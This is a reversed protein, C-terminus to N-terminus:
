GEIHVKACSFGIKEKAEGCTKYREFHVVHPGPGSVPVKTTWKVNKGDVTGAVDPTMLLWDKWINATYTCAADAKQDQPLGSEFDYTGAPYARATAGEPLVAHAVELDKCDEFLYAEKTQAFQATGIQNELEKVRGDSMSKFKDVLTLQCSSPDLAMQLKGRIKNNPNNYLRMQQTLEDGKYAKFEKNVETVATALDAETAGILPALAAADCVGDHSAAFARCWEKYHPEREMCNAIKGTMECDYAYMASISSASYDAVLKGGEDRFRVRTVPSAKDPGSAQPKMHVWATGALKDMSVDCAPPKEEPAKTREPATNSCAVLFLAPILHRRM